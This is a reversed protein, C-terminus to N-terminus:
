RKEFSFVYISEGWDAHQFLSTKVLKWKSSEIGLKNMVKELYMCMDPKQEYDFSIEAKTKNNSEEIIRITM